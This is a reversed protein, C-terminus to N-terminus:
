FGLLTSDDPNTRDQEICKALKQCSGLMRQHERTQLLDVTINKLKVHGGLKHKQRRHRDKSRGKQLVVAM